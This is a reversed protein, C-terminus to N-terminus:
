SAKLRLERDIFQALILSIVALVAGAIFPIKYDIMWLIGGTLPIVVAAIHNITFGVATTPAIDAPDGIKQFFTRVAVEFNFFIYDLIYIAAIVWWSDSYAYALFIFILCFYEVSLLSREGFKNIAKGIIPNLFFNVTNNLVFLLAILYASLGFKEVMLFVSFAVFIQRRAGSIFTLVYYLWYKKRLFMGKRQPVANKKTPDVFLCYVGCASILLGILLYIMSYDFFKLMVIVILGAIISCAASISRFRSLILPTEKKDFYQLTLSQNVTEYYHFGFSMVLTTLILGYYSPMFGTMAIGLGLIVISIAGVKHEPIVRIVFIVLLALFGPIERVSQIVGMQYGNIGVEEVAFNNFLNMWTQNGTVAAVTLLFLFFYMRRESTLAGEKGTKM